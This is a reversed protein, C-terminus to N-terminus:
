QSELLQDNARKMPTSALGARKRTIRQELCRSLGTIASCLAFYSLALIFFVEFPKTLLESNLRNAASTLEQVSIVYGLSTEKVLSAFQNVISPTMNYLAQPLLVHRMTAVPGMGLARAAERQGAPLAQLGARIVESLYAAEYIVLSCLLTAVGGVTIGTVLPLLFYSWFILMVLPLGRVVYVLVTAPHRLFGYPSLRCLALVISLPFALALGALSLLITLAVGGLAGAPFQGLLLTHWGSNLVELM